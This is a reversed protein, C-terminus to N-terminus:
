YGQMKAKLGAIVGYFGVKNLSSNFDVTTTGLSAKFAEVGTLGSSGTLDFISYGRIKADEIATFFLVHTAGLTFFRKDSGAHWPIVYKGTYFTLLGAGIEGNHEALWLVVDSNGTCTLRIDEFLGRPYTVRAKGGWRVLSLEYLRFYADWDELSEARRVLVGERNAVRVRRRQDREWHLMIDNSDLATLDIIHVKSPIRKGVVLPNLTFPSSTLQLNLRGLDREIFSISERNLKKGCLLSAYAGFPSFYRFARYRSKRLLPLCASEGEVQFLLPISEADYHRAAIDLWNPSQFFTTTPDKEMLSKWLELTTNDM